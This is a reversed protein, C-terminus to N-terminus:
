PHPRGRRVIRLYTCRAGRALAKQEYRTAPWDAPRCRWDEPGRPSWRFAPHAILAALTWRVLLPEDTAIRLEAGDSLVRALADLTERCVFRRNAHRKKPWPDPFLLAVRGISAEPLRGLVLRADDDFVRVNNLCHREVLVLLNAVGNVYPECGIFGTRPNEAAVAALHEGGGFGIELWVDTVAPEFLGGPELTGGNTPIAVRLRPLLIDLRQSRGPRLRRGHRRGFFSPEVRRLSEECHSV